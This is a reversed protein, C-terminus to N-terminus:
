FWRGVAVLDAVDARRADTKDRASWTAATTSAAADLCVSSLVTAIPTGKVRPVDAFAAPFTWTRAAGASATQARWCWQVGNAFRVYSGNANSGIEMLAGTPVGTDQSVAGLITSQDYMLRWPSWQPSSASRYSRRWRRPSGVEAYEQQFSDAAHRTILVLGFGNAGPPLTGTTGATTVRHVGSPTDTADLNALLQANGLNGWGFIGGNAFVAALRGATTDVPSQMAATGTLLGTVQMGANTIRVREAGGTAIGIQDAGIRYFGSDLDLLFTMSPAAATGARFAAADAGVRLANTAGIYADLASASAEVRAQVTGGSDAWAIQHGTGLTIAASALTLANTRYGHWAMGPLTAIETSGAVGRYVHGDLSYLLGDGARWGRVCAAEAQARTAGFATRITQGLAANAYRRGYEVLGAGSFHTEKGPIVEVGVSSAFTFGPLTTSGYRNDIDVLAARHNEYYRTHANTAIEGAVVRVAQPDVYGATTLDSIVARFKDAYLTPAETRNAEGQHVMILDVKTPAGPIQPLAAALSATMTTYLDISAGRSWSNAALTADSIFAEIGQAGKAVLIVYVDVDLRTALESAAHAIMNNVPLGGSTKNLPVVGFKARNFTTGVTPVSGDTNFIRVRPNLRLSGGTGVGVPNSQGWALVVLPGKFGHLASFGDNGQGATVGLYQSGEIDYVRDVRPVFDASAVAAAHSTSLAVAEITTAEADALATPPYTRSKGPAAAVSGPGVVLGSYRRDGKIATYTAGRGREWVQNGSPFGANRFTLGNRVVFYRGSGSVNQPELCFVAAGDMTTWSAVDGKLDADLHQGIGYFQGFVHSGCGHSFQTETTKIRARAMVLLSADGGFNNFNRPATGHIKGGILRVSQGQAVLWGIAAGGSTAETWDDYFRLDDVRTRLPDSQGETLSGLYNCPSVVILANTAAQRSVEALTVTRTGLNVATVITSLVDGFGFNGYGIGPGGHGAGVVHIRRGILNVGTPIASLQLQDSGSAITGTVAPFSCPVGSANAPPAAVLTIQTPSDVSQIVGPWSVRIATGTEEPDDPEDQNQMQGSEGMYFTMGVHRADFVAETATVVAGTNSFRVAMPMLGTTGGYDTPQWGSKGQVRCATWTSNQSTEIVRATNAVDRIMIGEFRAANVRRIHMGVPDLTPDGTGCIEFPGRFYSLTHRGEGQMWRWVARPVPYTIAQAAYIGSTRVSAQTTWDRLQVTVPGECDFMIRCRRRSFGIQWILTDTAESFLEDAVVYAGAEYIVRAHRRDAGVMWTVAAHHLARFAAAVASSDQSAIDGADALAATGAPLYSSLRFTRATTFPFLKVIEVANGGGDDGTGLWVSKDVFNAFLEGSLLAAPAGALGTLRRRLRLRIDTM